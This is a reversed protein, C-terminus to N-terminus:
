SFRAHPINSARIRISGRRFENYMANLFSALAPLGHFPARWQRHM